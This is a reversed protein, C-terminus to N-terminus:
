NECLSRPDNCPVRRDAIPRDNERDGTVTGSTKAFTLESWNGERKKLPLNHCLQRVQHHNMKLAM